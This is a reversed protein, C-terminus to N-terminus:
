ASLKSEFQLIRDSPIIFVRKELDGSEGEGWKLLREKLERSFRRYSVVSPPVKSVDTSCLIVFRSQSEKLFRVIVSWWRVDSEGLSLGFVILIDSSDILNFARGDDDSGFVKQIEGKVYALSIEHDSALEESCIQSVDNVGCIPERDLSGHAQVVREVCLSSIDSADAPAYHSGTGYAACLRPLLTTYNFTIFRIGLTYPTSYFQAVMQKEIPRMASRWFALSDIVKKANREIFDDTVEADAQKIFNMLDIDIAEKCDLAARVPDPELQSISRAYVGLMREFDAWIDIGEAEIQRALRGVPGDDQGHEKAFQSIFDKTGTKLGAALDFGNGILVGVSLSSSM